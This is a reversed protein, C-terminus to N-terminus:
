GITWDDSEHAEPYNAIQEGMFPVPDFDGTDNDRWSYVIIGDEVVFGIGDNTRYVKKSM